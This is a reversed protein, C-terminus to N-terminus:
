TLRWKYSNCLFSDKFWREWNLRSFGWKLWLAPSNVVRYLLDRGCSSTGVSTRYENSRAATPDCIGDAETRLLPKSQGQCHKLISPGALCEAYGGSFVGHGWGNRSSEEESPLFSVAWQKKSGQAVSLSRQRGSGGYPALLKEPWSEPAWGNASGKWHPPGM